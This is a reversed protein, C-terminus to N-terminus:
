QVCDPASSGDQSSACLRICCSPRGDFTFWGDASWVACAIGAGAARRSRRKLYGPPPFVAMLAAPTAVCTLADMPSAISFKLSWRSWGTWLHARTLVIADFNRASVM